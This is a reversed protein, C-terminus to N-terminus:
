LYIMLDITVNKESNGEWILFTKNRTKELQQTDWM